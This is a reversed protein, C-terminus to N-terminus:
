AELGDGEEDSSFDPVAGLHFTPMQCDEFDFGAASDAEEGAEGAPVAPAAITVGAGGAGSDGEVAMFDRFEGEFDFGAASDAEEGAEGAPVAPATIVGGDVDM